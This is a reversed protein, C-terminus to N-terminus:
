HGGDDSFFQQIVEEVPMEKGSYLKFAAAGQWVLMGKGDIIQSGHEAADALM